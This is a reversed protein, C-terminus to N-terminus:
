RAVASASTTCWTVKCIMQAHTNSYLQKHTDTALSKHDTQTHAHKRCPSGWGSRRCCGMSSTFPACHTRITIAPAARLM